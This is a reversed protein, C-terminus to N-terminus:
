LFGGNWVVAALMAAIVVPMTVHIPDAIGKGITEAVAVGFLFPGVFHALAALWLVRRPSMARSAIPTAVINASDHFGNLFDFILATILLLFFPFSM